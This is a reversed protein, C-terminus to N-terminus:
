VLSFIPDHLVCCMFSYLSFTMFTLILTKLRLKSSFSMETANEM